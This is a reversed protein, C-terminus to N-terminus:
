ATYGVLEPEQNTHHVYRPALSLGSTKMDKPDIGFAKLADFMKKVAEENKQWAETATKGDSAVGAVLHLLDPTYTVKGSGTVTVNASALGAFLLAVATAILAKM